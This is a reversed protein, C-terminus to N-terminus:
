SQPYKCPVVSSREGSIQTVAACVHTNTRQFGQDASVVARVQGRSSAAGAEKLADQSRECFLEFAHLYFGLAVHLVSLTASLTVM